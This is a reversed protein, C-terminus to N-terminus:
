KRTHLLAVVSVLGLASLLLATIGILEWQPVLGQEAGRGYAAVVIWGLAALVALLVAATIQELLRPGRPTSQNSHNNEPNM